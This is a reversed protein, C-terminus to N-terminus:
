FVLNMVDPGMVEHYSSPSVISITLFKIKPPELIGPVPCGPPSGDIPDCLTLCSQPSKAAAAYIDHDRPRSWEGSDVESDGYM